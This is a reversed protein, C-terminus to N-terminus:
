PQDEALAQGHFRKLGCTGTQEQPIAALDPGFDAYSAADKEM